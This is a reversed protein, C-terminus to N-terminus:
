TNVKENLVSWNMSVEDSEGSDEHEKKINSTEKSATRIKLSAPLVINETGLAKAANAKAIELLERKELLFTNNKVHSICGNLVFRFVAAISGRCQLM